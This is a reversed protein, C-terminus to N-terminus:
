PWLEGGFGDPGVRPDDLRKGSEALCAAHGRRLDGQRPHQVLEREDHGQEPRRLEGVQFLVQM